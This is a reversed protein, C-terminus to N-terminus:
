QAAVYKLARGQGQKEIRGEQALVNLRDIATGRSAGTLAMVDVTQISDFEELWYMIAQEMEERDTSLYTALGEAKKLLARVSTGPIWTNKYREVIAEGQVKTQSAAALAAKAQTPGAQLAKALAEVTIFPTTFFLYLIIAIRYDSRRPTPVIQRVLEMFAIQPEGGILKTEVFPGEVEEIAPPRHGWTIMAQYMHGVGVGQKDVLHLARFLDALAPYRAQRNSLVNEANIATPFGGPSRVILTSDLEVWRVEIPESRNWDRHIVANLVAERMARRPIEAVPLDTFSNVVVTNDKNLTNLTHILHEFQELVSHKADTVLRSRVKGGPVDFATLEFAARDDPCFLLRGAESLYGESNVAGVRHLLEEDTLEEFESSQSRALQLAPKRSDELRATSVQAMQDSVGQSRKADWWTSRDFPRCSDDVRWRLRGETDSVPEDTPATIIILLRQGEAIQTNIDPAIGIRAHIEQRLWVADLETGIIVGTGDEIGIILAGGSPSNAMCAVEDAIKAAAEPNTRKGPLIEKRIRRGAEEKFDLNQTEGPWQIKGDKATALTKDVIALLKERSFKEFSIESNM